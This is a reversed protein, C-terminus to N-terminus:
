ANEVLSVIFSTKIIQSTRQPHRSQTRDLGQRSNMDQTWKLNAQKSAPFENLM